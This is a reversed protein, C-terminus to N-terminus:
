AYTDLLGRPREHRVARGSVAIDEGGDGGSAFSRNGGNRDGQPQQQQAQDFVGGGSLTLGADQLSAALTPLSAELASRTAAQSAHFAVQADQGDVVIRVSVPGMEAPNLTLKAEHVGERAFASIQSSLVQPFEPSDMPVAVQAESPAAAAEESRHTSSPAHTAGAGAIPATEIRAAASGAAADSAAGPVATGALMTSGLVETAAAPDTAAAQVMGAADAAKGTAGAAALPSGSEVDAAAADAQASLRELWSMLDTSGPVPAGPLAPADTAAASTASATEGETPAANEAKAAESKGESGRQQASREANAREGSPRQPERQRETNSSRTNQTQKPAGDQARAAATAEPTRVAERPAQPAARQAERVEFANGLASDRSRAPADQARDLLAAFRGPSEISDSRSTPSGNAAATTSSLWPNNQVTM